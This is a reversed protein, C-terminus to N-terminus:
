GWRAGSCRGNRERLPEGPVMEFGNAVYARELAYYIPLGDMYPIRGVRLKPRM